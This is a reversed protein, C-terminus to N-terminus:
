VTPAPVYNLFITFPYVTNRYYMNCQQFRFDSDSIGRKEKSVNHHFRGNRLCMFSGCGANDLGDLITACNM